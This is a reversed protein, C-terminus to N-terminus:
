AMVNKLNHQQPPQRLQQHQVLQKQPQLLVKGLVTLQAATITITVRMLLMTLHTGIKRRGM